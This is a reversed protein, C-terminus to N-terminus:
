CVLVDFRSIQFLLCQRSLQRATTISRYYIIYLTVLPYLRTHCLCRSVQLDISGYGSKHRAILAAM